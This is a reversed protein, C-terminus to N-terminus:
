GRVLVSCPSRTLPRVISDDELRVYAGAPTDQDADHDDHGDGESCPEKTGFALVLRIDVQRGLSVLM